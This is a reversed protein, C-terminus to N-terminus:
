QTSIIEGMIGGGNEGGRWGCYIIKQRRVDLPPAQKINNIIIPQM